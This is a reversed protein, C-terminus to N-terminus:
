DDRDKVNQGFYFTVRRRAAGEQPALRRTEAKVRDWTRQRRSPRADTAGPVEAELRRGQHIDFNASPGKAEATM